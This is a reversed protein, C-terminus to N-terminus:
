KQKGKCNNSYWMKWKLVSRFAFKKLKKKKLQNGQCNNNYWVKFRLVSMFTFFKIKRENVIM